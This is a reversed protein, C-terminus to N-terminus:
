LAEGLSSTSVYGHQVVECFVALGAETAALIEYKQPLYGLFLFMDSENVYRHEAPRARNRQCTALVPGLFMGVMGGARDAKVTEHPDM